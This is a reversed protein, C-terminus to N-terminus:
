LAVRDVYQRWQEIAGSAWAGNNTGRIVGSETASRDNVTVMQDGPNEIAWAIYKLMGMRIGAPIKAADCFGVRYRATYGLNVARGCGGCCTSADFAEFYVPIEVRTMGPVGHIVVPNLGGMVTVIGDYSPEPLRVTTKGSRRDRATTSIDVTRYGDGRWTRGTYQEAAEIAADRYLALMLDTVSPVDDTKTHARILAVPLIAEPDLQM